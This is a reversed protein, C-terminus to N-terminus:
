GHGGGSGFIRIAVSFRLTVSEIEQLDCTYRVHVCVNITVRAIETTEVGGNSNTRRFLGPWADEIFNRVCM